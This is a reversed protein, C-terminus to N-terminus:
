NNESYIGKNAPGVSLFLKTPNLGCAVPNIIAGTNNKIDKNENIKSEAM